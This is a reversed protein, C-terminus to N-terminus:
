IVRRLPPSDASRRIFEAPRKNTFLKNNKVAIAVNREVAEIEDTRETSRLQEVVQVFGIHHHDANLKVAHGSFPQLDPVLPSIKEPAAIGTIEFRPNRGLAEALLQSNMPSRDAVLIRIQKLSESIPASYSLSM